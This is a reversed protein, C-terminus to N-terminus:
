ANDLSVVETNTAVLLKLLAVTKEWRIPCLETERTPCDALNEPGPVRCVLMRHGLEKLRLIKRRFSASPSYGRSIAKRVAEADTALYILCPGAHEKAAHEALDVIAQFEQDGQLQVPLGVEGHVKHIKWPDEKVGFTIFARASVHADTVARIVARPQFVPRKLERYTGEQMRSWIQHLEAERSAPMRYPATYGTRQALVGINSAEDVLPEHEVLDEGRARIDWM